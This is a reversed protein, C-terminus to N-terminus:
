FPVLKSKILKKYREFQFMKSLKMQFTVFRQADATDATWMGVTRKRRSRELAHSRASLFTMELIAAGVRKSRDHSKDDRSPAPKFFPSARM